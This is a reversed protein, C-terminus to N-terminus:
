TTVAAKIRDEMKFLARRAADIEIPEFFIEDGPRIQGLLPLDASIVAGIKRYGGTVTEGLIIIPKGDGPVQISGSILGESIISEATDNKREILPGNLRIGTRDSQPSVAYISNTFIRRAQDTFDDDQPGWVMRLTWTSCYKPIWQPLVHRGAAALKLQPSEVQLVDGKQLPRGEFGGFGASLNTSLSGLLPLLKLKGGFAVYARCGSEPGAFSLIEDKKLVQSCWMDLPHQNVQPRLNAGTVAICVDSLAKLRLGMLTTELCAQDEPNDVLRNAIRLSFSDLAGSPPVGYCGLGFRGLDQITTQLGPSLIEIGNVAAM